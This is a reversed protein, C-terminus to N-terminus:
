DVPIWIEASQVEPSRKRSLAFRQVEPAGVLTRGSRLIWTGYIYRYTDELRAVPAAHSFVAYGRGALEKRVFRGTPRGEGRPRVGAFYSFGTKCSARTVDSRELYDSVGYVASSDFWEQRDALEKALVRWLGEIKATTIHGGIELGFLTMGPKEMMVPEHGLGRTYHDLAARDIAPRQCVLPLVGRRRFDTPSLGYLRKFARTFGEHSEFGVDLAIDLVSRKAGLLRRAAETLRRRRIYDGLPEGLVASFVRHFHYPSMAAAGAADALTIESGLHEEIYLSARELRDLYDAV